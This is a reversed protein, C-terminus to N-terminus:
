GTIGYQTRIAAIDAPTQPIPIVLQKSVIKNQFDTIKARISGDADIKTWMQAYVSKTQSANMPLTAGASQVITLFTDLDSADSLKNGLDALGLTVIGGTFNGANIDRIATYVGRDVRKMMSAMVFGPHVWDQDSDVGIGYPLGTTLGHSTGYDAVADLMGKGTLGAVNYMVDVGQALWGEAVQRGLTADTFSGTYKYYVQIQKGTMNEAQSLGEYFGAEFKYLVPIEVGLVVGVKNSKTTLGALLGALASGDQESFVISRVNSMGPLFGDIIAFQQNTYQRATQNLADTLLFGIAIIISYKGASALTQLNPLYDGGTKSQVYTVNVGFDTKAKEAGIYAMDNFSLDGRGGVDFVVAVQKTQAPPAAFYIAAGAVAIIVVIVVALVM